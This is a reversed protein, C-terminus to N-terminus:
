PQLEFPVFQTRSLADDHPAVLRIDMARTLHASAMATAVFFRANMAIYILRTVLVETPPTLVLDRSLAITSTAPQM